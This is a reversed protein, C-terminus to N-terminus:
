YILSEFLLFFYIYLQVYKILSNLVIYIHKFSITMTAVRVM